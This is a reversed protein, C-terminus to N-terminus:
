IHQETAAQQSDHGPSSSWKADSEAPRQPSHLGSAHHDGCRSHRRRLPQRAGCSVDYLSAARLHLLGAQCKGHQSRARCEGDGPWSDPAPATTQYWPLYADCQARDLGCPRETAKATARAPSASGKAGSCAQPRGEGSGDYITVLAAAVPEVSSSVCTLHLGDNRTWGADVNRASTDLMSVGAPMCRQLATHMGCLVIRASM